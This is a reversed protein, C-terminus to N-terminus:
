TAKEVYTILQGEYPDWAHRTVRFGLDALYGTRMRGLDTSALLENPVDAGPHQDMYDKILQFTAKNAVTGTVALLQSPPLDSYPVTYEKFGLDEVMQVMTARMLGGPLGEGNYAGVVHMYYDFTGSGQNFVPIQKLTIHADGPFDTDIIRHGPFTWTYNGGSQSEVLKAEGSPSGKSKPSRPLQRGDFDFATPSWSVKSPACFIPLGGRGEQALAATVVAGAVRAVVAGDDEQPWLDFAVDLAPIPPGAAFAQVRSLSERAREVGIEMLRRLRRGQPNGPDFAPDSGHIEIAGISVGSGFGWRGTPAALVGGSAPGTPAPAGRASGLLRAETELAARELDNGLPGARARQMPRFPRTRSVAATMPKGAAVDRYHSIARSFYGSLTVGLFADKVRGPILPLNFPITNLKHASHWTILTQNGFREFRLAGVDQVVSGNDSKLVEWRVRACTIRGSRDREESVAEVKTMDLDKGPAGLVMREIQRGAGAQRVQGGKYDVLNKGWDKIPVRELFKELPMDVVGRTVEEVMGDPRRRTETLIKGIALDAGERGGLPREGSELDRVKEEMSAFSQDTVGTLTIPQPGSVDGWPFAADLWSAFSSMAATWEARDLPRVIRGMAARAASRGTPLAECRLVLKDIEIAM